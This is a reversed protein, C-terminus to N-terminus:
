RTIEQMNMEETQKKLSEIQKSRYQIELQKNCAVYNLSSIYKQSEGVINQLGHIEEVFSQHHLLMEQIRDSKEKLQIETQSIEHVLEALGIVKLPSIGKSILNNYFQVFPLLQDGLENYFKTVDDLGKLNLYELYLRKIVDIKM